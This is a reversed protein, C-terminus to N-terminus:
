ERSDPLNLRSRLAVNFSQLFVVPQETEVRAVQRELDPASVLPSSVTDRSGEQGHQEVVDLTFRFAHVPEHM